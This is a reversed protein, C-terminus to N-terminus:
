YMNQATFNPRYSSMLQELLLAAYRDVHMGWWWLIVYMPVSLFSLCSFSPPENSQRDLALTHSAGVIAIQYLSDNLIFCFPENTAVQLSKFNNWNNFLTLWTFSLLSACDHFCQERFWFVVTKLPVIRCHTQKLFKLILVIWTWVHTSKTDAGQMNNVTNSFPVKRQLRGDVAIVCLYVFDWNDSLLQYKLM